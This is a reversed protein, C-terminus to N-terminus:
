YYNGLSKQAVLRNIANDEVLLISINLLDINNNNNNAKKLKLYIKVSTGRNKKSDIEITGKMLQALKYAISMGLGSGGFKRSISHNEQSFIHFIKSLFDSDMGIGTDSITIQIKQSKPLDQVMECHISVSGRHTFKL